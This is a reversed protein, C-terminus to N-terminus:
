KTELWLKREHFVLTRLTGFTQSVRREVDVDMRGDMAVVSGLYPFEHVNAVEGGSM